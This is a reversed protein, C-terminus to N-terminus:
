LYLHSSFGVIVSVSFLNSFLTFIKDLLTKDSVDGKYFKVKKKAM